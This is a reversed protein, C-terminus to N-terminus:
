GEAEREAHLVGLPKLVGGAVTFNELATLVANVSDRSPTGTVVVPVNKWFAEPSSEGSPHTIAVPREDVVSRNTKRRPM